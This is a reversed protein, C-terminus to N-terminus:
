EAEFGTADVWPFSVTFLPSSCVVEAGEQSNIQGHCLIMQTGCTEHTWILLHTPKMRGSNSFLRDFKLETTFSHSSM